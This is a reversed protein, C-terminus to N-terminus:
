PAYGTGSASEHSWILSNYSRDSSGAVAVGGAVARTGYESVLRTIVGQSIPLLINVAAAPIGIFLIEGWERLISRLGGFHISLLKERRIIVTGIMIFSSARSDQHGRNGAPRKYRDHASHRLSAGLVMHDYLDPDSPSDGTRRRLRYLPTRYHSDGLARSVHATTGIGLGMSLGGSILVVPFSFSMAALPAAGLQGVFFTDDLNFLVISLTGPIMPLLLRFLASGVGDQIMDPKKM